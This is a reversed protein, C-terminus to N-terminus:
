RKSQTSSWFWAQQSLKELNAENVFNYRETIQLYVQQQSDLVKAREKAYRVVEECLAEIDQAEQKNLEPFLSQIRIWLREDSPNGWELSLDLAENLILRSFNM